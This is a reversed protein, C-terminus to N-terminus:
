GMSVVPHGMRSNTGSMARLMDTTSIVGGSSQKAVLQRLLDNQEALLRNNYTMAGSVANAIGQTIQDNNAVATRSGFRGVMEPGAERAVFIEGSDVYGGSARATVNMNIYGNLQSNLLKDVKADFNAKATITATKDQVKTYKSYMNTFSAKEVGKVTATTSSGKLNPKYKKDTKNWGFLKEFVKDQVGKVKGNASSGELKVKGNKNFLQDFLSDKKGNAEGVVTQGVINLMRTGKREPFLTDFASDVATTVSLSIEEEVKDKKGFLSEWWDLLKQALESIRAKFDAFIEKSHARPVWAAEAYDYEFWKEFEAQDVIGTEIELGVHFPNPVNTIKDVFEALGPFEIEALNGMHEVFDDVDSSHLLALLESIEYGLTHINWRDQSESKGSAWELFGKIKPWAKEIDDALYGIAEGLSTILVPLAEEIAWSGFPLLIDTWVDEFVGSLSQALSDFAGTLDGLSEVAATWDLNKSWEEIKTTVTSVHGTITEWLNAINQIIKEGNGNEQWADKIGQAVNGVTNLINTWTQLINEAIQQGTGNTWVDQIDEWVAGALEKLSTFAYSFSQMLAEGKEDWAKKLPDFLTEFTEKLGEFLNDELPVTEFMDEYSTGSGGGGGGGGGSDNGGNLPNIEDLGLITAKIAKAAKSANGAADTMSDGFAKPYYIAKTWTSQGGLAAIAQNIINLLDVFKEIVYEIAPAVLNILPMAMAGLSNKLYQASSALGDMTGAFANNTARAFQYANQIGESFGKTIERIVSRIIRYKAIRLIDAGLARLKGLSGSIARGMVSLGSAAKLAGGWFPAFHKAAGWIASGVGTLAKKAANAASALIQFAVSANRARGEEEATGGGGSRDREPSKSPGISRAESFGRAIEALDRLKQADVTQLQQLEHTILKIGEAFDSFHKPDTKAIANAFRAISDISKTDINLKGMGKLDKGLNKFGEGFGKFKDPSVSDAAKALDTLGKAVKALADMSGINQKMRTLVSELQELKKITSDIDGLQSDSKITIKIVEEAM